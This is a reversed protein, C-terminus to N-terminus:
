SSIYYMIDLSGSAIFTDNEFLMPISRNNNCNSMIWTKLEEDVNHINVESYQINRVRFLQKTTTCQPCNNGTILNIGKDLM